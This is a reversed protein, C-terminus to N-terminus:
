RELANGFIEFDKQKNKIIAEKVLQRSLKKQYEQNQNNTM